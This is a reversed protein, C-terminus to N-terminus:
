KRKLKMFSVCHNTLFFNSSHIFIHKTLLTELGISLM